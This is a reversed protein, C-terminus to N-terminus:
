PTNVFSAGSVQLYDVAIPGAANWAISQGPGSYITLNLDSAAGSYQKAVIRGGVTINVTVNIGASIWLNCITYTNAVGTFITGSTAFITNTYSVATSVKITTNNSYTAM